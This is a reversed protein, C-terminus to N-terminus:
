CEYRQMIPQKIDAHLDFTVYYYCTAYNLIHNCKLYLMKAICVSSLTINNVVLTFSHVYNSFFFISRYSVFMIHHLYNRLHSFM